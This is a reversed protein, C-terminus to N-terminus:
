SMVETEALQHKSYTRCRVESRDDQVVNFGDLTIAKMMPARRDCGRPTPPVVSDDIGLLTGGGGEGLDGNGRRMLLRVITAGAAASVMAQMRNTYERVLMRAAFAFACRWRSASVPPSPSLKSFSCRLRCPMALFTSPSLPVTTSSPLCSSPPFSLVLSTVGAAPLPFLSSSSLNCASLPLIPRLLLSLQVPMLGM